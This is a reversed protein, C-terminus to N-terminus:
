FIFRNRNCNQSIRFHKVYEKPHKHNFLRNCDGDIDTIRNQKAWQMWKIQMSYRNYIRLLSLACKKNLDWEIRIQPAAAFLAWLITYVSITYVISWNGVMKSHNQMSFHIEHKRVKAIYRESCCSIFFVCVFECSFPLRICVSNNIM